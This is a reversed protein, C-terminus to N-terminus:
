YRYVLSFLAFRNDFGIGTTFGKYNQASNTGTQYTAYVSPNIEVAAHFNAYVQFLLGLSYPIAGTYNTSTSKQQDQPIAPNLNRRQNFDATLRVAPGHFFSLKTTVKRRREFGIEVGGSYFLNSIPFTGSGSGSESYAGSLNVLGIKFYTKPAIQKKYKLTISLPSSTAFSLYFEKRMPGLTDSQSKLGTFIFFAFILSFCINPNKM